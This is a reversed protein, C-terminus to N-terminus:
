PTKEKEDDLSTGRVDITGARGAMGGRIPGLPGSLGKMAPYGLRMMGADTFRQAAGYATQPLGRGTGAAGARMEHQLAAMPDLLRLQDLQARVDPGARNAASRVAEVLPLQGPRRKSYDILAQFSDGGPAALKARSKVEDIMRSNENQHASWGGPAGNMPRADRDIFAAKYLQRAQRAEPTNPDASLTQLHDKLVEHESATYRKPSVYVKQVGKKKLLMALGIAGAGAAATGDKDDSAAAAIGAGALSVGWEKLLETAKSTDVLDYEGNVAKVRSAKLKAPDATETLDIRQLIGGKSGKHADLLAKNFEERNAFKGKAQEYLDSIYTKSTGPKWEPLKPASRSARDAAQADANKRWEPVEPQYGKKQRVELPYEAAREGVLRDINSAKTGGFYQGLKEPEIVRFSGLHGNGGSMPVALALEEKSLRGLGAEQRLEIVGEADAKLLAAHAKEVNGGMGKVVEPVSVLGTRPSTANKILDPAPSTEKDLASMRANERRIAPGAERVPDVAVSGLEKMNPDKAPATPREARAAKGPRLSDLSPKAEPALSAETQGTPRASEPGASPKPMPKWGGDGGSVPPGGPGPDVERAGGATDPPPKKPKPLLTAKWQGSLFAEAEDPTLELAGKVPKLSVGDINRNFFKKTYDVAPQGNIPLLRGKKEDFHFQEKLQHLAEKQTAEVPLKMKGESSVYFPANREEVQLKVAKVAKEEAEAIKPAVERAIVDVPKVDLEKGAREAAAVPEPAVPGKGMEFKGGLREFRGPAGGYRPGERFQEAGRAALTGLAEGGAGLAVNLPDIAAQGARSAVEGPGIGTSGTQALNGGAQVVDQGAQVAGGGLAAGAGGALVRATLGGGAAVAAKGTLGTAAKYLGNAAGWPSLLALGQGIGNAVPHEETTRANYEKSGEIPIGTQEIGPVVKPDGSSITEDVARGAGLLGTKDVGMVFSNVTDMAPGIAGIGKMGLSRIANMAGGGQLWPAKSYRYATKGAKATADATERWMQDAAMQYLSDDRTLRAIRDPDPPLSPSLAAGFAADDALRKQVVALPPEYVFVTGKSSEGPKRLFESQATDDGGPHTTAPQTALAQPVLDFSPDLMDELPPGAAGAGGAGTPAAHARQALLSDLEAQEEPTLAM